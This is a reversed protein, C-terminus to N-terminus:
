VDFTQKKCSRCAGCSCHKALWVPGHKILRFLRAVTAENLQFRGHSVDIMIGIIARLSQIGNEDFLHEQRAVVAFHLLLAIVHTEKEAGSWQRRKEFFEMTRPLLRLAAAWDFDALLDEFSGFTVGATKLHEFFQEIDAPDINESLQVVQQVFSDRSRHLARPKRVRRRRRVRKVMKKNEQAEETRVSEKKKHAM